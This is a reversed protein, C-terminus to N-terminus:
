QPPLGNAKLEGGKLITSLVEESRLAWARETAPPAQNNHAAQPM